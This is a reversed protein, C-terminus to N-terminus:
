LMSKSTGDDRAMVESMVGGAPPPPSFMVTQYRSHYFSNAKKQDGSLHCGCLFRSLCPSHPLPELGLAVMRSFHPEIKVLNGDADLDAIKRVLYQFSVGSAQDFPKQWSIRMWDGPVVDVVTGDPRKVVDGPQIVYIMSSDNGNIQIWKGSPSVEFSMMLGYATCDTLSKAEDPM